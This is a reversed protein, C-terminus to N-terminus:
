GKVEVMSMPVIMGSTRANHICDDLNVYGEHCSATIQSNEHTRRWRWDKDGDKYFCWKSQEASDLLETMAKAVEPDVIEQVAKRLVEMYQAM